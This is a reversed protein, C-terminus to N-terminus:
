REKEEGEDEEGENGKTGGFDEDHEWPCTVGLAGTYGGKNYWAEEDEKGEQKSRNM